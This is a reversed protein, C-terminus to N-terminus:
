EIVKWVGNRRGGERVLRGKEQLLVTMRKLTRVSIGLKTKEM